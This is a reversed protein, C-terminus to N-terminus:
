SLARYLARIVDSETVMGVLVQQGNIIPLHHHGERSFLPLLDIMRATDSAVRVQRSMLQRVLTRDPAGSDSMQPAHTGHWHAIFDARTVIGRVHGLEDVVPLSKINNEMLLQWASQVSEHGRVTVLQTSMIDSCRLQGLTRQYAHAQADHLLAQLDQKDMDIVQNYHRLAADLDDTTFRPSPVEASPMVVKPHPYPRGTMRNYAATLLVLLVSNLLVPVLAFRWDHPQSLVTLLAVAGGPPHLCRMFFMTLLAAGVAVGPALTPQPLWQCVALGVLASLTNGGIVAWPQTLPSSPLALLLVASAGMPAVLWVSSQQPVLWHSVLGTLVIALMAGFAARWQELRSVSPAEPWLARFFAEM